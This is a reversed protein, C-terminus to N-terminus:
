PAVYRATKVIVCRTAMRSQTELFHMLLMVVYRMENEPIAQQCRRHVEDEGIGELAQREDTM